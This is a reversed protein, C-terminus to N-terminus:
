LLTIRDKYINLDSELTKKKGELGDKLFKM